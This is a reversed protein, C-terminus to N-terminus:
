LDLAKVYETAKELLYKKIHAEALTNQGGPLEGPIGADSSRWTPEVCIYDDSDIQITVDPKLECNPLARKESVIGVQPADEKLCAELLLGLAKNLQKDGKSANAQVRRYENATEEVDRTSGAYPTTEIGLETLIAKYLRTARMASKAEEPNANQQKLTARAKEDGFV